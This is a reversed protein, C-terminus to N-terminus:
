FFTVETDAAAAAKVPRPVAATASGAGARPRAHHVAREEAMAYTSELTQLMAEASVPVLEGQQAFRDQVAQLCAPMSDINSQVHALIQAVRDQFQLQVLADSVEAQIGRSDDKMQTAAGALSETIARFEDLVAAISSRSGALSAQDSAASGDAAARTTTIAESIIQVKGAIRKGTEGSQASLKRVEQALVGFGRGAEGARAAEIAANVALLNTQAAIAAVDAAMQRLEETYRALGHVQVVLTAKSTAAQELGNLVQALQQESRAYVAALGPESGNASDGSSSMRVTRELKDVIGGFRQALAAVASEMHSRSAAIQGSWVPALDGGFRGVSALYAALAQHARQHAAHSRLSALLGAAGLMVAVGATAWGIQGLLLLAMAGAAGLM